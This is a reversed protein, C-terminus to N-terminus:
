DSKKLIGRIGSLAGGVGKKLEGGTGKVSEGLDKAADLVAKGSQGVSALVGGFIRDLIEAAARPGSVPQGQGVNSMEITPLPIPLAGGQLITGSFNIQGNEVKVSDIVVRRTSGTSQNPKGAEPEGAVSRVFAEVTSQITGINTRRLGIEYTVQPNNVIVERVHVLDSFVTRPEMSVRIEEIKLAHATKFGEPNGVVFNVIRLRGALPRLDVRDVTVPCKTVLPGATEIAKEVIRGLLMYAIVLLVVAALLLGVIGRLLWTSLRRM